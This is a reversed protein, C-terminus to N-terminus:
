LRLNAGLGNRLDFDHPVLERSHICRVTKESAARCPLTERPSCASWRRRDGSRYKLSRGELATEGSSESSEQKVPGSEERVEFVSPLGAGPGGFGLSPFALMCVLLRIMAGCGFRIARRTRSRRTRPRRPLTKPPDPTHMSEGFRLRYEQGGSPQRGPNKFREIRVLVGDLTM